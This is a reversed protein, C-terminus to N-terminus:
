GEQRYVGIRGITVNAEDPLPSRSVLRVKLKDIDLGGALHLRDIIKTIELSFTLGEGAHGGDTLSAARAGFLAVTGAKEEIVKSPDTPDPAELYVALVAGDRDASVHELSLFVRNPPSQALTQFSAAVRVRVPRNIAVETQLEKGSLRLKTPSAGLAEVKRPMTQVKKSLAAAQQASAGLAVFRGAISAPAAPATLDDYTYDLQSLDAVDAPTYVWSADNPLPMAFARFGMGAPGKTWNQSAPDQHSSDAKKWVEWLRDINAHHLWFIPDLGATIPDSMLGTKNIGGVNVHVIDHPQSELGGHSGGNHTFADTEPGGFGGSGGGDASAGVFDPDALAATEDAAYDGTMEVFVNGDDNPGFRMEEYLPNDSAGDPWSRSAFEPPLKDQGTKFYNWYPLAWDAPAGPLTAMAARLVKELGMLYGRHWPLFYWSGHQCQLWYTDRESKPPQQSTPAPSGAAQWIRADFGHIAAYFRWSTKDTLPRAKMVKVARAYWLIDSAWAGGLEYVNKRVLAM